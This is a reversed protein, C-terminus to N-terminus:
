PNDCRKNFNSILCALDATNVTNNQDFDAKASGSVSKGWQRILESRDPNNIACDGQVPAIDGIPLDINEINTTGKGAKFSIVRRLLNASQIIFNYEKGEFMSVSISTPQDEGLIPVNSQKFVTINASPTASATSPKEKIEINATTLPRRLSNCAGYAKFTLTAQGPTCSIPNTKQGDKSILIIETASALPQNITATTQLNTWLDPQAITANQGGVLIGGIENGFHLGNITISTQTGSAISECSVSEAVPKLALIIDKFFVQSYETNDSNRGVFQVYVRRLSRPYTDCPTTVCTVPVFTYSIKRQSIQNLRANTWGAETDFESVKFGTITPQQNTTTQTSTSSTPSSSARPSGSTNSSSQSTKAAECAAVIQVCNNCESTTGIHNGIEATVSNYEHVICSGDGCNTTSKGATLCEVYTNAVKYFQDCTYNNIPRCASDAGTGRGYCFGGAITKGIYGASTCDFNCSSWDHTTTECGNVDVAAYATKILQFSTSSTTNPPTIEIEINESTAILRASGSADNIVRVNSGTFTIPNISAKSKLIQQKQILYMSLPIAIALIIFIVATKFISSTFFRKVKDM